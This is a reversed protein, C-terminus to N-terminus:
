NEQWRGCDSCYSLNLDQDYTLNTSQCYDCETKIRLEEVWYSNLEEEQDDQTGDDKYIVPFKFYLYEWADEYAEFIKDKFCTNGFDDTIYYKIKAKM